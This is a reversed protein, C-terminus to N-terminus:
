GGLSGDTRAHGTWSRRHLRGAPTSRPNGSEWLELALDHNQGIQSAMPRLTYISIGLTGQTNIGYRKMGAVNEPNALGRLSNLIEDANNSM